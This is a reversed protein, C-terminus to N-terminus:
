TLHMIGSPRRMQNLSMLHVPITARTAGPSPPPTRHPFGPCTRRADRGLCHVVSLYTTILLGLAPFLWHLIGTVSTSEHLRIMWLLWALLGLAYLFQLTPPTSYRCM